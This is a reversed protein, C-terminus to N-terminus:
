SALRRKQLRVLGTKVIADNNFCALMETLVVVGKYGPGRPGRAQDYEVFMKATYSGGAHCLINM